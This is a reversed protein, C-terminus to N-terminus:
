RGAAWRRVERKLQDGEFMLGRDAHSIFTDEGVVLHDLLTVGILQGVVQLRHTLAEDEDSPVPDGSPHNHFAIVAPAGAVMAARYVDAPHVEVATMTGRHPYHIGLVKNRATLLLVGFVEQLQGQVADKIVHYAHRSSVISPATAAKYGPERVLAVEVRLGEVKYSQVFRRPPPNPRPFVEYGEDVYVLPKYPV